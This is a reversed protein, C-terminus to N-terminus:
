LVGKKKKIIIKIKDKLKIKIGKIEKDETKERQKDSKWKM